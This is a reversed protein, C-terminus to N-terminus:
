TNIVLQYMPFFFLVYNVYDVQWFRIIKIRINKTWIIKSKPIKANLYKNIDISQHNKRPFIKKVSNKYILYIPTGVPSVM